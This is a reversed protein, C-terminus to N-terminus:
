FSTLLNGLTAQKRHQATITRIAHAYAHQWERMHRSPHANAAMRNAYQMALKTETRTLRM